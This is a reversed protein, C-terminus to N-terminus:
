WILDAGYARPHVRFGPSSGAFILIQGTHVPIFGHFSCPTCNHSFRGGYARPHVGQASAAKKIGSHRGTRVPIFRTFNIRSKESHFRGRICPSSDLVDINSQCYEGDAGYARPHTQRAQRSDACKPLRYPLNGPRFKISPPCIKNRGTKKQGFLTIRM